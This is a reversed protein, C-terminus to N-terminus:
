LEPIAMGAALALRKTQPKDDVVPYLRRPNHVLTYEANRRNIGLVGRAKLRRVTSLM